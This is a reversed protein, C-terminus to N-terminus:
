RKEKLISFLLILGLTGAVAFSLASILPLGYFIKEGVNITLSGSILLAAIIMGYTLRNSSKDLNVSLKEIDTDRMEIKINGKELKELLRTTQGPLEDIIKKMDLAKRISRKAVADPEYRKAILEDIFPEVMRGFKFDPYYLLGVGEITILTKGFLAFQIPIHVGFELSIDFIQELIRSIKIDKLKSSKLPYIVDDIRSKFEQKDVEKDLASLAELSELVKDTDGQAMGLLLDIANERMNEDFKGVIGFDVFAIKNGKVIFINSPHPDAHFLGHIFVQELISYFGNQLAKKIDINYRKNIKHLEVGKIFEMVLLKESCFEEYVKPIRTTKSNNFNNHFRRINEAEINFDLEKRTWEKFEEVIRVPRYPKLPKVYTELIKAITEM